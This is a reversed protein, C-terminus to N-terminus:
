DGDIFLMNGASDKAYITKPSYRPSKNSGINKYILVNAKNGGGFEGVLLDLKGDADWDYLAPAAQNLKAVQVFDGDAKLFTPETLKPAGAIYTQNLEKFNQSKASFSLLMLASVLLYKKKM